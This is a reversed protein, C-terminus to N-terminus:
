VYMINFVAYLLHLAQVLSLAHVFAAALRNFVM